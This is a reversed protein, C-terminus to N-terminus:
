NQATKIIYILFFVFGMWSGEESVIFLLGHVEPVPEKSTASSYSVITVHM